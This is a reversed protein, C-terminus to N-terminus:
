IKLSNVVRIMLDNWTEKKGLRFLKVSDYWDCHTLDIHWRWNYNYPLLVICPKGMAGALHALSSDSSIVLDVNALAAATYSFDKFSKSLDTIDYKKALKEFEEAGEFTQASYIKTNKLKFLPAFAGVNIVRDTEYYTNGQWKIAIKFKDNDFFKEKFYQIKEPVAKLYKDHHMFIQNNNLNLAYPISLFPIHLDFNFEREDYFLDMVEIEPFNERFLQSLEKQPKLIIKKCKKQLEPLYRAFMIMDGFGAEYYTYLIKDSIDGGQWLKATKM